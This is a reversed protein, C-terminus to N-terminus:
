RRWRRWRLGLVDWLIRASDKVPHVRSKPEHAWEVGVERVQYGREEALLVLEVDFAFGDITLEAALERAVAGAFLKFGCQTDRFGRVGLARLIRNFTKGMLERYLPQRSTIRSTSLGRSGMVMEAEALYPELRELEPIPASLDADTMLVRRGRSAMLGRKVAAGKGRNSPLVLARVGRAAFSRALEATGDTSGDDVVLVEWAGPEFRAALYELLRPLTNCLRREENYAPIIISLEPEM